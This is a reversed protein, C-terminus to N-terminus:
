WQSSVKLYARKAKGFGKAEQRYNRYITTPLRINGPEKEHITSGPAREHCNCGTPPIQPIIQNTHSRKGEILLETVVLKEPTQAELVM